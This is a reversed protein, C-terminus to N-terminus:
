NRDVPVFPILGKAFALEQVERPMHRVDVVLGNVELLWVLPNDGLQSPLTWNPEFPHMGLVQRVIKAKASATSAGVDFAACLEAMTMTPSSAKDSLFNVQGLAYVVACCWVQKHGSALPSPRKRCLAALAARALEAYEDNLHRRCVEDTIAIMSDYSAQWDKPVKTSKSNTM